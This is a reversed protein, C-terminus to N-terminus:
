TTKLLEMAAKHITKMRKKREDDDIIPSFVRIKANETKITKTLIYNEM